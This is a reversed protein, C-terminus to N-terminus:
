RDILLVIEVDPIEAAYRQRVIEFTRRSTVFFFKYRAEAANLKEFDKRFTHKQQAGLDNEGYPTTTKIEGVIREDTETVVDIDLGPAGQAKEAADFEALKFIRTLYAKALITALFSQDNSINGQIARIKAIFEFWAAPDDDVPAANKSLYDYLMAVHQRIRKFYAQENPTQEM